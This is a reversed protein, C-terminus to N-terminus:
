FIDVLAKPPAYACHQIMHKHAYTYTTLLVICWARTCDDSLSFEGYIFISYVIYDICNQHHKLLRSKEFLISFYEMIIFRKLSKCYVKLLERNLTIQAIVAHHIKGFILQNEEGHIRALFKLNKLPNVISLQVRNM